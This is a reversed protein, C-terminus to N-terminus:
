LLDTIPYDPHDPPMLSAASQCTLLKPRPLKCHLRMTLDLETRIGKQTLTHNVQNAYENFKESVPVISFM